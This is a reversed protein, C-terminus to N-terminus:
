EEAQLDRRRYSRRKKEPAESQPDSKEAAKLTEKVVPADSAVVLGAKELIDLHKEEVLCVQGPKRNENGYPHAKLVKVTKM